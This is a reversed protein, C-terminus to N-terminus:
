ERLRSTSIRATLIASLRRASLGAQTLRIAPPAWRITVDRLEAVSRGALVAFPAELAGTGGLLLEGAGDLGPVPATLTGAAGVAVRGDGSLDGPSAPLTGTGTARVSAAAALAAARATLVGAAVTGLTGTGTIAGPTAALHGAATVTVSGAGALAPFPATLAGLGTVSTLVQADGALAPTAATLAGTGTAPTLVQADGTLTPTAATLAGTGTAPTPASAGAEPLWITYEILQQAPASMSRTEGGYSGGTDVAKYLASTFLQTGSAFATRSGGPLTYGAPVAGTPVTTSGSRGAFLAVVEGAAAAAVVAIPWATVTSAPAVAAHAEGSLTAGSFTYLCGIFRGSVSAAFTVTAGLDAATLEKGYLWAVITTSGTDPGAVLTWGAPPTVTVTTTSNTLLVLAVQGAAATAPVTVTGSSTVASQRDNILSKDIYAVAV